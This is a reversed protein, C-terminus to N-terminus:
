GRFTDPDAGSGEVGKIHTIHEMDGPSLKFDFIAANERIREPTTSKPLPLIGRQLHWRLCVQAVTKHHKKALEDLGDTKFLNGHAFPGWAEVLINRARCYALTEDQNMGPHLEIQNAAPVVEAEDILVDLHHPKFNCVGIACIRGEEYLKEMARWTDHVMKPWDKDHGGAIPWHILYLDLYELGLAAVTRDFARLTADYGQDKNWLKSTVFLEKRAIGSERVARGVSKENGYVAATDIHRYGVELAEKVARVAVDGDPTLYTGFGVCPIDVANNLKYADELSDM